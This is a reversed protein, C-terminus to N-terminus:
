FDCISVYSVTNKADINAGKYILKCTIPVHNFRSTYHLASYGNTGVENVNWDNQELLYHVVAFHKKEAAILLCASGDASRVAIDASHKVLLIVAGLFGSYCAAQLPTRGNGCKQEINVGSSLLLQMVEIHRRDIANM